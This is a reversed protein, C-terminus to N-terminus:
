NAEAAQVATNLVQELFQPVQFNGQAIEDVVRVALETKRRNPLCSALKTLYDPDTTPPRRTQPIAAEYIAEFGNNCLFQEMNGQPLMCATGQASCFPLADNQDKAGQPDNDLVATWAIGFDRAVKLYLALKASQYAVCRVGARELDIGLHAAIGQLLTVETEGEGLLWCRAFLLEGRALRIHFNFMREERPTLTGPQLQFVSTNTTGQALRRVHAIPVQSLLDGSHTSVLRQGPIDQVTKWLTRVASPHLHAEPEELGVFPQWLTNADSMELSLHASFLSMVALSQTGEGHREVPVRAGTTTGLHVKAKRLMDSMRGPVAEVASQTTTQKPLVSQITDLQNRVTGFSGHSAVVLDNVELLKQEIQQQDSADLQNDQIFPRWFPGNAGFHFSADRLADLLFFRVEQRLAALLPESKQALPQGAADLFEVTQVHGNVDYQCTIRLVIRSAGSTADVQVMTQVRRLLSNPWDGQADEAFTLTIRIPPSSEPSSTPTALHFDYDDFAVRRGVGVGVLSCRLAQLISSKGTNNEGILVVLDDLELDLSKLCRFNEIQLRRLRIGAPATTSPQPM